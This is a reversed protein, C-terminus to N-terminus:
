YLFLSVFHVFPCKRSLASSFFSPPCFFLRCECQGNVDFSKGELSDNILADFIKNYKEKDLRSAHPSDVPHSAPMSPRKREGISSAATALCLAVLFAVATM